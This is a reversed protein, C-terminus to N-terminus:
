RTGCLDGLVLLLKYLDQARKRSAILDIDDIERYLPSTPQNAVPCLMKVAGGGFFLVPIPENKIKLQEPTSMRTIAKPNMAAWITVIGRELLYSKSDVYEPIHLQARAQKYDISSTLPTEIEYKTKDYDETLLCRTL